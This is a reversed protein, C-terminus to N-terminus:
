NEYNELSVCYVANKYSQSPYLDQSNMFNLLKKNGVSNGNHLTAFTFNYAGPIPADAVFQMIGNNGLVLKLQLQENAGCRPHSGCDRGDNLFIQCESQFGDNDNTLLPTGVIRNTHFEPHDARGHVQTYIRGQMEM